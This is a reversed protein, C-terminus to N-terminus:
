RAETGQNPDGEVQPNDTGPAEPAANERADTDAGQGTRRQTPDVPTQKGGSATPESQQNETNM